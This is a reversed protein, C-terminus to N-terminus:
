HRRQPGAALALEDIRQNLLRVNTRLELLQEAFPAGYIGNLM